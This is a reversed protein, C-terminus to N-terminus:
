AAMPKNKMARGCPAITSRLTRRRPRLACGRQDYYHFRFNGTLPKLGELPQSFPFGPGGHIVLVNAGTGEAFHYLKIGSEVTWFDRDSSPPPPVLPASLHKSARVLGPEYLPKQMWNWVILGAIAVLAVLAVIGIIIFTRM